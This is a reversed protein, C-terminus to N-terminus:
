IFYYKWDRDKRYSWRSVEEYCDRDSMRLDVLLKKQQDKWKLPTQVADSVYVIPNGKKFFRIRQLLMYPYTPPTPPEEVELLATQYSPNRKQIFFFTV